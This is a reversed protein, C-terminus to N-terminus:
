RGIRGGKILTLKLSPTVESAQMDRRHEPAAVPIPIRNGLILAIAVWRDPVHLRTGRKALRILADDPIGHFQPLASFHKVSADNIRLPVNKQQRVTPRIV